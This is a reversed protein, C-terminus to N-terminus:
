SGPTGIMADTGRTRYPGSPFPRQGHGGVTRLLRRVTLGRVPAVAYGGIGALWTASGLSVADAGAWFYERCDDATRIGGSAIIPLTVGADRL